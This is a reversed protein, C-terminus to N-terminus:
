KTQYKDKVKNDVETWQQGPKMNIRKQSIKIPVKLKDKKISRTKVSIQQNIKSSKLTNGENVWVVPQGKERIMLGKFEIKTPERLISVGNGKGASDKDFKGAKRMQDLKNRESSTTFFTMLKGVKDNQNAMVVPSVLIFTILLFLTKNM